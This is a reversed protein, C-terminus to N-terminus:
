RKRISQTALPHAGVARDKTKVKIPHGDEGRLLGQGDNEDHIHHVSSFCKRFQVCVSGTTNRVTNKHVFAHSFLM